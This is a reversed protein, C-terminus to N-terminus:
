QQGAHKAVLALGRLPLDREGRARSGLHPALLPGNGGTVVVLPTGAIGTSLQAVLEKVAGIQGFLLGSRIAAPTNKGLASLTPVALEEIPILPLLATYQHLSRSCLGVGPLIAGGEFAGDAAVLDVTTATGSDVIIAPVGPSRIANTAVANLLRDIGVGDPVDVRVELPLERARRIVRPRPWSGAPWEGLVREIGEPKVGAVFGQSPGEGPGSFWAALKEWPIPDGHPVALVRRCEALSPRVAALARSDFLGFKIRSNGVDVALITGSSNGDGTM